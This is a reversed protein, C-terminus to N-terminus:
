AAVDLVGYGRSRYETVKQTAGTKETVVLTDSPLFYSALDQAVDLYGGPNNRLDIILNKTDSRAFNRLDTIFADTSSKAFTSLQLVFFKQKAAQLARENAEKKQQSGPLAAILSSTKEAIAALVGKTASVVRTATTPIAVTDRVVTVEEQKESKPRLITLAVTSGKPGRIHPIVARVEQGITSQGDVARIRSGAVIGAKSAPSGQLVGSVVIEGSVDTLVAGIGEFEGNVQEKFAVAQEKPIFVTYPDNYSRVLGDIAGAVRAKTSSALPSSSATPAFNKDLISWTKWFDGFNVKAAPDDLILSLDGSTQTNALLGPLPPTTLDASGRSYGLKYSGYSISLLLITGLVWPIYVRRMMKKEVVITCKVVLAAIAGAAALVPALLFGVAGITLPFEILTNGAENKVIVRRANGEQIIHKLTKVIDDGSVKFEETNSTHKAGETTHEEKQEEMGGM